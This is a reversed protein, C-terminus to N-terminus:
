GHIRLRRGLGRLITPVIERRGNLDWRFRLYHSYGQLFALPGGADAYRCYETFSVWQTGWVTRAFRSSDTLMVTNEVRELLSPPRTLKALVRGPVPADFSEMLYRLGLGVRVSLQNAGAYAVLREWDIAAGRERLILLSDPIWRIPTEENWRIGHVIVSLLMSTPDPQLVPTGLFDGPETAAWLARDAAASATEFLLHWHLDIESGGPGAFQLAHSFRLLDDSIPHRGRYGAEELVASAAPVQSQPVAVDVDMMPRLAHNRYYSLVLPAGKLILLDSHQEALRAVVPAVAHFLRHTEYWARRYVGKLRAMLSDQVGFRQLNWYVLPLLRVVNWGFPQEPDIRMRWARFAAVAAAETQLAATLLLRQEENPLLEARLREPSSM